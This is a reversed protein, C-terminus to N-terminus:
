LEEGVWNGWKSLGEYDPCYLAGAGIYGGDATQRFQGAGYGTYIKQWEVDGNTYFKLAWSSGRTSGSVIYGSDITPQVSWAMDEASSNFNFIKAWEIAPQGGSNPLPVVSSDASSYVTLILIVFFLTRKM